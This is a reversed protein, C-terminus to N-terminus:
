EKKNLLAITYSPLIDSKIEIGFEELMREKFAQYLDEVYVTCAFDGVLKNSTIENGGIEYSKVRM